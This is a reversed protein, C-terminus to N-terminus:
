TAYNYGPMHSMVFKRDAAEWSIAFATDRLPTNEFGDRYRIVGYIHVEYDGSNIRRWDDDSFAKLDEFHNTCFITQGKAIVGPITRWRDYEPTSKLPDDYVLTYSAEKLTAPMNGSNHLQLRLHPVVRPGFNAFDAGTINVFGRNSFILTREAVAASLTAANAADKTAALTAAMLDAQRRIETEERELIATQKVLVDSQKNMVSVSNDAATASRDSAIAAQRAAKAAYAAVVIGILSLVLSLVGVIVLQGNFSSMEQQIARDKNRDESEAKLEEPSKQIYVTVPPPQPAEATKRANGPQSAEQTAPGKTTSTREPVKVPQSQVAIALAFLATIRLM